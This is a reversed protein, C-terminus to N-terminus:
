EVKRFHVYTGIELGIFVNTFSKGLKRGSEKDNVHIRSRQLLWEKFIDQIWEDITEATNCKIKQNEFKIIVAYM